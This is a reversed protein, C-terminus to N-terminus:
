DVQQKGAKIDLVKGVLDNGIRRYGEFLKEGAYRLGNKLNVGLKKSYCENLSLAYTAGLAAPIGISLLTNCPEPLKLSRASSSVNYMYACYKVGSMMDLALNSLIHSNSFNKWFKSGEKCEVRNELERLGVPLGYVVPTLIMHHKLLGPGVGETEMLGRAIFNDEGQPGFVSAGIYTTLFDNIISVISRTVPGNANRKVFDKVKNLDVDEIKEHYLDTVAKRLNLM